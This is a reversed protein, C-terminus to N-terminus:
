GRRRFVQRVAGKEPILDDHEFVEFIGNPYFVVDVAETTGKPVYVTNAVKIAESLNDVDVAPGGGYLVVAIHIDRVDDRDSLEVHHWLAAEWGAESIAYREGIATEGWKGGVIRQLRVGLSATATFTFEHEIV